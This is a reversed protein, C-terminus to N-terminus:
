VRHASPLDVGNAAVAAATAACSRPCVVFAQVGTTAAQCRKEPDIEVPLTMVFTDVPAQLPQMPMCADTEAAQQKHNSATAATAM